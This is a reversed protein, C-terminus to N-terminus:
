LTWMFLNCLFGASQNGGIWAIFTVKVMNQAAACPPNIFSGSSAVQQTLIVYAGPTSSYAYDYHDVYAGHSGGGSTLSLSIQAVAYAQRSFNFDQSVTYASGGSDLGRWAYGMNSMYAM